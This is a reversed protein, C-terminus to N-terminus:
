RPIKGQNKEYSKISFTFSGLNIKTDKKNFKELNFLMKDTINKDNDVICQKFVVFGFSDFLLLDKKPHTDLFNWWHTGPKNERNTNLIVFLYKARKEKIIDYFNIYKTISDSSYVCIFNIKLDENTEDDFFKEIEINTVGNGSAM